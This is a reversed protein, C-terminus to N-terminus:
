KNEGELEKILQMAEGYGQEASRYLYIAGKKANKNVIKGDFFFLSVAYQAPAYGLDASNKYYVFAQAEDNKEYFYYQALAYQSQGNKRGMSNNWCAIANITDRIKWYCIGLQYNAEINGSSSSIKYYRIAEQLDVGVGQGYYYCNALAYQAIDYGLSASKSWYEIKMSDNIPFTFIGQEYCVGLDYLAKAQSQSNYQSAKILYKSANVTDNNKAFFCYLSYASERCGLSDSKQLYMYELWHNKKHGYLQALVYCAGNHNNECAKEFWYNAVISDKKTGLGELYMIGLLYQSNAFGETAAKNHWYFSKKYDKKVCIGNFYCRAIYNQSEIIGNKAKTYEENFELNQSFCSFSELFILFLFLMKRM